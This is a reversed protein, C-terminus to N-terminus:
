WSFFMLQRKKGGCNQLKKFYLFKNMFQMKLQLSTYSFFLSDEWAVQQKHGSIQFPSPFFYPHWVLKTGSSNWITNRTFSDELNQIALKKCYAQIQQPEERVDGSALTRSVSALIINKCCLWKLM